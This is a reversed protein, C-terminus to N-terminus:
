LSTLAKSAADEMLAEPVSEGTWLQFQLRAQASLMAVGSLTKCGAFRAKRLFETEIPNYVLDYALHADLLQDADVPSENERKGSTGLPTANIVVDYGAYRSRDLPECKVNIRKGLISAKKIDRAFITVDAGKRVLAWSAASAAGGAGIVAVHLGRLEPFERQLPILFGVADTNYGILQEGEVVVTNVAGIEEAQPDMRDLCDIVSLKHPATVSLGRINWDIQRTLPHVMQRFFQKVDKVEFPIYVGDIKAAAFAANHIHPSVSHMAPSGVLGCILTENTITDIRYISRLEAATIQGPATQKGSESAAYTLFSGRASGVVRTAFGANGMAIAILERGAEKARKLMAFTALCDTADDAHYAIKLIRAPTHSMEEYIEQLNAPLGTFDHHSCVVKSWDLFNDCENLLLSRVLDLELDVLCNRFTNRSWFALREEITVAAKGGQEVPRYTLLLPQRTTKILKHIGQINELINDLCDLRLEVLDANEASSEVAQALSNLNSECLSICINTQKEKSM